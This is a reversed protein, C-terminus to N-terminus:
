RGSRTAASGASRGRRPRRARPRSRRPRGPTCPGSPARSAASGMFREITTRQATRARAANTGLLAVAWAFKTEDVGAGSEIKGYLAVGLATFMVRESDTSAPDPVMWTVFAVPVRNSTGGTVSEPSPRVIDTPNFGVPAPTM